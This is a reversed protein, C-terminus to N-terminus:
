GPVASELVWGAWDYPDPYRRRVARQAQRLAVAPPRGAALGEYFGTILAAAVADNVAWLTSVCHVAGAALAAGRLGLHSGDAYDVAGVGTQCASLVVLETGALDLLAFEGASILGNGVDPPTEAGALWANFGALALVSRSQPSRPGITGLWEARRRHVAADGAAWNTAASWGFPGEDEEEAVVAGAISRLRYGRPEQQEALSGIAKLFIGHTALHLIRPRRLGLLAQRTAARGSILRGGAMRQVAGAETATAPLRPQRAIPLDTTDLELDFDPDAITVPPDAITGPSASAAADSAAPGLVLRRASPVLVILHDDILAHGRPGPLAAFPVHAWPGTPAIILRECLDDEATILGVGTADLVRRPRGPPLTSGDLTLGNLRDAVVDAPGLDRFRIPGDHRLDFVVYHRAGDPRRATAIDLLQTDAGLRERLEDVSIRRMGARGRRARRNLASEAAHLRREGEEHRYRAERISDTLDGGLDMRALEARLRRVEDFLGADAQEVRNVRDAPHTPDTQEAPHAPHAPHAQEAQEAPHAPDAQQLRLWASGQREALLGKRNLLLEYLWDAAVGEPENPLCHGLIVEARRQYADFRHRADAESGEALLTDLLAADLEILEAAVAEALARDGSVAAARVLAALGSAQEDSPTLAPALRTFWTAMLATAEAAHGQDLLAAGRWRAVTWRTGASVEYRRAGDIAAATLADVQEDDGRQQAADTRNILCLLYDESTAPLGDKLLGCARAFYDEARNLHEDTVANVFRGDEMWLPGARRALGAEILGLNDLTIAIDVADAEDGAVELSAILDQRAGTLDGRAQRVLGRNNLLASSLGVPTESRGELSTLAETLVAEARDLEGSERLLDGLLTAFTAAPLPDGNEGRQRAQDLLVIARGPLGTRRWERALGSVPGISGATTYASLALEDAVQRLEEVIPWAAVRAADRILQSLGALAQAVEDQSGPDCGELTEISATVRDALAGPRATVLEVLRRLADPWQETM